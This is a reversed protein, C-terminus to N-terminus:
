VGYQTSISPIEKRAQADAAIMAAKQEADEKAEEKAARGGTIWNTIAMIGM